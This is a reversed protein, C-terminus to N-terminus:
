IKLKRNEVNLFDDKTMLDFGEFNEKKRKLFILNKKVQLPPCICEPSHKSQFLHFLNIM